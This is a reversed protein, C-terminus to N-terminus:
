RSAKAPPSATRGHQRGPYGSLTRRLRYLSSIVKSYLVLEMHIPVHEAGVRAKKRFRPNNPDFNQRGMSVKEYGNEWAWNILDWDLYYSPTYHLLDRNIAQYGFYVTKKVPDIITVSGGAFIDGKTLLAVRLFEPSLHDWLTEFFSLPLITGNVHRMNQKYYRYFLEIESRRDIERLEFGEGPFRLISKRTKKSFTSWITEPPRKRLDIIMNGIGENSYSSYTIGSLLDPRYTNFHLFSYDKKFLSIVDDFDAPDFEDKLIINNMESQPIDVLGRFNLTSREIWPSIGVVDDDDLILYYKLNPHLADELVRKWKLSHFFTGEPSRNNFADWQDATDRSLLEISYPM